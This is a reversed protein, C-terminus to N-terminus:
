LLAGRVATVLDEPAMITKDLIRRVGYPKVDELNIDSALNTCLIIPLSGTDGYSQLEHLLPFATAGTLLVDLVIAQPKEDDVADMATAANSSVFTKYGAKQLVRAQQEGLWVDDEVILITQAKM